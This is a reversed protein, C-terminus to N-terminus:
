VTQGVELTVARRALKDFGDHEVEIRYAGPPLSAAHYAGADNSELKTVIGTLENVIKIKAGPIVGGAPDQIRGSLASGSQAFLVMASIVIFILSQIIRDM